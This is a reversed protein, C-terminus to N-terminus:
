GMKVEVTDQFRSVLIYTDVTVVIAATTSERSFPELHPHQNLYRSLFSRKENGTLVDASGLATVSVASYTDEAPNRSNHVLMAVDPCALLNDYKATTDPTLFMIRSLDKSASFIVLNVYPRGDRLTSLVSLPENEFLTKIRSLANKRNEM